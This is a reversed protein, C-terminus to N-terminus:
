KTFGNSMFGDNAEPESFFASMVSSSSSRHNALAVLSILMAPGGRVACIVFRMARSSTIFAMSTRQRSRYTSTDWSRANSVLNTVDFINM